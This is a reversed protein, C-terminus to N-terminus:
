ISPYLTPRPVKSVSDQVRMAVAELELIDKLFYHATIGANSEPNCAMGKQVTLQFNVISRLINVEDRIDKVTCALKSANILITELDNADDTTPSKAEDTADKEPQDDKGTKMCRTRDDSPTSKCWKRLYLKDFDEFM